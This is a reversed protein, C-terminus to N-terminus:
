GPPLASSIVIQSIPPYLTHRLRSQVPGGWHLVQDCARHLTYKLIKPIMACIRGDRTNFWWSVGLTGQATLVSGHAVASGSVPVWLALELNLIVSPAPTFPPRIWFDSSLLPPLDFNHLKEFAWSWMHNTPWSHCGVFCALCLYSPLDLCLCVHDQGPCVHAWTKGMTRAGWDPLFWIGYRPQPCGSVQPSLTPM